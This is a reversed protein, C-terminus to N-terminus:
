PRASRPCKCQSAASYRGGARTTMPLSSAGSKLRWAAREPTANTPSAAYADSRDPADADNPELARDSDAGVDALPRSQRGAVHHIRRDAGFPRPVRGTPASMALAQFAEAVRGARAARECPQVSAPWFRGLKISPTWGRRIASRHRRSSCTWCQRIPTALSNARSAEIMSSLASQPFRAQPPSGARRRRGPSAELVGGLDAIQSTARRRSRRRGRPWLLPRDSDPKM